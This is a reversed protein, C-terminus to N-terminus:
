AASQDFQDFPVPNDTKKSVAAGILAAIAGIVLYMLATSVPIVILSIKRAMAMRQDVQEPTMEKDSEMKARAVDMSRDLAEPMIVKFLVLMFVAMVGAVLASAKFGHAFINGFTVNGWTDKSYSACAWIIGGVMIAIPILSLGTKQELKFVTTIVAFLILLAAIILGKTAPATPQKNM